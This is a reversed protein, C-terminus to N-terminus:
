LIPCSRVGLIVNGLIQLDLVDVKGDGNIDRGLGLNAGLITNILIQLDLVNVSTDGNVDCRNAPPTGSITTSVENSFGSELGSTNYATVAFYYTGPALGTITYTTQVGITIPAGYVGPATGYYIKYGALDTETNADWALTVDAALASASGALLILAFVIFNLPFLRREKVLNVSGEMWRMEHLGWALPVRGCWPSECWNLGKM